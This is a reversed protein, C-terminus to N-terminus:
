PHPQRLSFTEAIALMERYLPMKPEDVHPLYALLDLCFVRGGTSDAIFYSWDTAPGASRGAANVGV